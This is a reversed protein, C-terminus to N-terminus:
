KLGVSISLSVDIDEMINSPVKGIKALLRDKNITRIHETQVFGSRLLNLGPINKGIRVQTPLQKTKERISIPVVITTTSYFNGIDNQIIVVPTIEQAEFGIGKGLDAFFVDGRCVNEDEIKFKVRKLGLSVKLVENLQSIDSQKLTMSGCYSNHVKVRDKSITRIQETLLISDSSLLPYDCKKLVTQTTKLNRVVGDRSLSTMPVVILNPSHFNGTNNQVVVCPRMGKQESGYNNDGLDVHYINNRVFECNNM